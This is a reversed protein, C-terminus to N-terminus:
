TDCIWKVKFSVGRHIYISWLLDVLCGNNEDFAFRNSLGSLSSLLANILIPSSYQILQENYEKLESASSDAEISKSSPLYILREFFFMIGKLADRHRLQLGTIGAGVIAMSSQHQKLFPSPAFQLAKSVLYFYEEVVDPHQEFDKLARINEFFTSSM